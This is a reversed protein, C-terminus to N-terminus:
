EKNYKNTIDVWNLNMSYVELGPQYKIHYKLCENKNLSFKHFRENDLSKMILIHVPNNNITYIFKILKFTRQKYYKDNTRYALKYIHGTIFKTKVKKKAERKAEQKSEIEQIYQEFTDEYNKLDTESEETEKNLIKQFDINALDDIKEVSVTINKRPKASKNSRYSTKTITDITDKSFTRVTITQTTKWM